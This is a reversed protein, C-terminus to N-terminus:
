KRSYVFMLGWFNRVKKIHQAGSEAATPYVPDDPEIMMPLNTGDIASVDYYDKNGDSLTFEAKTTPGGPGVYAPCVHSTDPYYCVGTQCGATEDCGTSGWITGSWRTDSETEYLPFRFSKGPELMRDTNGSEEPPFDWFCGIGM